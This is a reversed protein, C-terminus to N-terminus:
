GSARRLVSFVDGNLVRMETGRTACCPVASIFWLKLYSEWVSSGKTFFFYYM